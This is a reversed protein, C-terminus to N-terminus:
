HVKTLGHPIAPTPTSFRSESRLTLAGVV